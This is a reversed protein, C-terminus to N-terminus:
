HLAFCKLEANAGQEDPALVTELPLLTPVPCLTGSQLLTDVMLGDDFIEALYQLEQNFLLARQARSTGCLILYRASHTREM